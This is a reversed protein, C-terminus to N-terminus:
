ERLTRSCKPLCSTIYKCSSSKHGVISSSLEVSSFYSQNEYDRRSILSKNAKRHFYSCFDVNQKVKVRGLSLMKNCIASSDSKHTSMRNVARTRRPSSCLLIRFRSKSYNLSSDFSSRFQPRCSILFM